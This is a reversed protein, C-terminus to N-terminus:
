GDGNVPDRVATWTEGQDQSRLFIVRFAEGITYVNQPRVYPVYTAILDATATCVTYLAQAVGALHPTSTATATGTSTTSMTKTILKFVSAVASSTASLTKSIVMTVSATATSTASLTKTVSRVFSSTATSTVALAKSTSRVMTATSTSTVSLVKLIVKLAAVTPTATSTVSMVKSALRVMTASGTSTVSMVKNSIRVMSATATSTVSLAKNAQRQMSAVATSTVSMIVSGLKPKTISPTGTSTVALSKSTRRVAAAVATSTASLTKTVSKVATATATSTANLTQSFVAGASSAMRVLLPAVTEPGSDPIYSTYHHIVATNTVASQSRVNLAMLGPKQPGVSDTIQAQWAVPERTGHAWSKFRITTPSIGVTEVRAWVLAGTAFVAGVVGASLLTTRAGAVSRRLTVSGSTSTEASYSDNSTEATAPWTTDQNRLTLYLTATSQSAAFLVLMGQNPPRMATTQYIHSSRGAAAGASISLANSSITQSFGSDGAGNTWRTADVVSGSGNFCGSFITQGGPDVLGQAAM